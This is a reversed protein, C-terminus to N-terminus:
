VVLQPVEVSGRAINDENEFDDGGVIEFEEPGINAEILKLKGKAIIMSRKYYPGIFKSYAKFTQLINFNSKFNVDIRCFELQYWINRIKACPTFPNYGERILAQLGNEDGLQLEVARLMSHELLQVWEGNDCPYNNEVLKRYGFKKSWVWTADRRQTRIFKPGFRTGYHITERTVDVTRHDKSPVEAPRVYSINCPSTRYKLYAVKAKRSNHLPTAKPWPLNSESQLESILQQRNEWSCSKEIDIIENQTNLIFLFAGFREQRAIAHEYYASGSIVDGESLVVAHRQFCTMEEPKCIFNFAEDGGVRANGLVPKLVDGYYRFYSPDREYHEHRTYTGRALEYDIQGASYDMGSMMGNLSDPHYPNLEFGFYHTVHIRTSNEIGGAFGIYYMLDVPLKTLPIRICRNNYKLDLMAKEIQHFYEHGKVGMETFFVRLEGKRELVRRLTPVNPNLIAVEMGLSAKNWLDSNLLGYELFRRTKGVMTEERSQDIIDPAEYQLIRHTAAIGAAEDQDVVAQGLALFDFIPSDASKVHVINPIFEKYGVHVVPEVGGEGTLMELRYVNGVEREGIRLGSSVVGNGFLPNGDDMGRFYDEHTLPLQAWYDKIIDIDSRSM